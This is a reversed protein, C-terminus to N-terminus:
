SGTALFHRNVCNELRGDRLYRAATCSSFACNDRMSEPPNPWLSRMAMKIGRRKIDRGITGDYRANAYTIGLSTPVCASKNIGRARKRRGFHVRIAIRLCALDRLMIPETAILQDPRVFGSSQGRSLVGPLIVPESRVRSARQHQGTTELELHPVNPLGNVAVVCDVIAPGDAKLAKDIADRLEGPREEKFGVGGCARALAVYDPNPFETGHKWAPVGIAQSELTILGFASDNYVFAKVPLKHQVASLFECTLMNFGGDGCFAIVQRSRDLAQIGNAQGLATDVAGNNFSGIIRQEDNQRIWNGSWLTNLGTDFVFM